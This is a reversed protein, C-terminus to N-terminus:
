ARGMAKAKAFAKTARKDKSLSKFMAYAKRFDSGFTNCGFTGFGFASVSVPQIRGGTYAQCFKFTTGNASRVVRVLSSSRTFTLNSM